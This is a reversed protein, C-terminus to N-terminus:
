MNIVEYAIAPAKSYNLDHDKLLSGPRFPHRLCELHPFICAIAHCGEIAIHLARQVHKNPWFVTVLIDPLSIRKFDTM